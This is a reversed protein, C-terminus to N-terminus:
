KNKSLPFTPLFLPLSVDMHSLFMFRGVGLQSAPGCGLSTGQDPILAAVTQNAPWHETWLAVGAM